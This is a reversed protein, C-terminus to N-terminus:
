KEFALIHVNGLADGIAIHTSTGACSIITADCTFRVLRKMHAIDWVTIATTDRSRALAYKGDPLVCSAAWGREVSAWSPPGDNLSWGTVVGFYSTSVVHTGDPTIALSNISYRQPFQLSQDRGLDWVIIRDNSSSVARKGDATLAITTVAAKHGRLLRGEHSSDLDWVIVAGDASGSLVRNGNPTLAVASVRDRHGTLAIPPEQGVMDWIVLRGDVCGTVAHKGDPTLVLCVVGYDKNAWALRPPENRLNWVRLGCEASGLVAFEGDETLRMVLDESVVEHLVAASGCRLDWIFLDKACSIARHGNSSLALQEVMASHRDFVPAPQVQSLDWVLLDCGGSVAYKGDPTVALLHIPEQHGELVRPAQTGDLDWVVLAEKTSSHVGTVIRNGEPALALSLIPGIPSKLIRPPRDTALDWVTVVGETCIAALSGDPALATRSERIEKALERTLLPQIPDLDWVTITGDSCWSIPHRGDSTIAVELIPAGLNEVIFADTDLDKWFVLTDGVGAVISTGNSVLAHPARNTPNKFVRRPHNGGLDVMIFADPTGIISTKGDPTLAISGVGGEHQEVAHSNRDVNWFSVDFRSAGLIHRGDASIALYDTTWWNRELVRLVSSLAQDLSPYLPRLRPLAVNRELLKLFEAIAPRDACNLLRGTMQSFFEHPHRSLVHYSRMLASRELTLADQDAHEGRLYSLQLDHVSLGDNDQTALSRNVLTRIVGGIEDQDGGWLAQLFHMPAPVGELLVALRLYRSKVDPDFAGLAEVSVAIAAHLTEHAYGAPRAGRYKLKARKFDGLVGDWGKDPKNRLAVGIMALALALGCCENLVDSAQPEPLDGTRGAWATLLRRANASDLEGVEVTEASMKGALTQDRTTYLIRSRGGYLLFPEADAASWLDDLVLLVAKDQLLTQLADTSYNRFEQNLAKCIAEIRQDLTLRGNLGMPHWVIGDPFAERVRADHCVAIAIASKGVGGMGEVATVGVAGGGSRLKEVLPESIEPRDVFTNMLRPLSAFPSIPVFRDDALASPNQELLGSRRLSSEVVLGPSGGFETTQGTSVPSTSTAPTLEIIRSVFWLTEKGLTTRILRGPLPDNLLVRLKGLCKDLDNGKLKGAWVATCVREKWIMKNPNRLFYELVQLPKKQFVDSHSALLEPLAQKIPIGERLLLLAKGQRQLRYRIKTGDPLEDDFPYSADGAQLDSPM